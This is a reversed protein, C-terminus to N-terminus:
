VVLGNTLTDRAVALAFVAIAVRRSFFISIVLNAIICLVVKNQAM